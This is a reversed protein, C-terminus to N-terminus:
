FAGCCRWKDPRARRAVRGVGHRKPAANPSRVSQTRRAHDSRRVQGGARQRSSLPILGHPRAPYASPSWSSRSPFLRVVYLLASARSGRYTQSLRRFNEALWCRFTKARPRAFLSKAYSRAFLDRRSARRDFFPIQSLNRLDFCFHRSRFLAPRCPRGL